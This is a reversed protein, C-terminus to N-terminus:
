RRRLTKTPTVNEIGLLSLVEAKPIRWCSVHKTMKAWQVDVIQDRISLEANNGTRNQVKYSQHIFFGVVGRVTKSLGRLKKYSVTMHHRREIAIEIGSGIRVNWNNTGTMKQVILDNSQFGQDHLGNESRVVMGHQYEKIGSKGFVAVVGGPTMITIEKFASGKGAKELKGTVYFGTVDDGILLMPHELTGDYNFCIRENDGQHFLFHPDGFTCDKFDCAPDDKPCDKTPICKHIGDGEFHERCVCTYSGENNHCIAMEHCQHYGLACEDIDSCTAGGFGKDCVCEYSGITNKCTAHVSCQDTGRECENVDECSLGDGEM